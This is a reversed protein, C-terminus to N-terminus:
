ELLYLVNKCAIWFYQGWKQAAQFINSITCSVDVEDACEIGKDVDHHSREQQVAMINRLALSQHLYQM